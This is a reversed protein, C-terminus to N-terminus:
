EHREREQKIGWALFGLGAILALVIQLWSAKSGEFIKYLPAFVVILIGAERLAEGTMEATPKKGHLVQELRRFFREEADAM